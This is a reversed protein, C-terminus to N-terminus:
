AEVGFGTGNETGSGAQRPDQRMAVAIGPREPDITAGTRSLQAFRQADVEAHVLLQVRRGIQCPGKGFAHFDGVHDTGHLLNQEDIFVRHRHSIGAEFRLAGREAPMEENMVAPDVDPKDVRMELRHLITFNPVDLGGTLLPKKKVRIIPASKLGGTGESTGPQQAMRANPRRARGCPLPSTRYFLRAPKGVRSRRVMRERKRVLGSSVRRPSVSCGSCRNFRVKPGTCRVNSPTPAMIPAPIKEVM